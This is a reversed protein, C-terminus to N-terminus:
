FKMKDKFRGYKRYNYHTLGATFTKSGDQNQNIIYLNWAGRLKVVQLGDELLVGLIGVFEM